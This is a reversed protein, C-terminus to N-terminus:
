YSSASVRLTPDVAALLPGLAAMAPPEFRPGLREHTSSGGHADPHLMSASRFSVRRSIMIRQLRLLSPQAEALPRSRLRRSPLAANM